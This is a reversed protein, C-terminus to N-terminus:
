SWASIATIEGDTWTITRTYTMAGITWDIQTLEGDTWTYAFSGNNKSADTPPKEAIVRRKNVALGQSM